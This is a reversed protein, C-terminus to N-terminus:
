GIADRDSANRAGSDPSLAAVCFSLCRVPQGGMIIVVSPISTSSSPDTRCSGTASSGIASYEISLFGVERRVSNTIIQAYQTKECVCLLSLSSSTSLPLLSGGDLIKSKVPITRTYYRTFAAISRFIHSVLQMSGDDCGPASAANGLSEEHM